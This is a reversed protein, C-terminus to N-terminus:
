EFSRAARLACLSARSRVKNGSNPSTSTAPATKSRKFVLKAAEEEGTVIVGVDSAKAVGVMAALDPKIESGGGVGAEVLVDRGSVGVGGAGVGDAATAPWCNGRAPFRM